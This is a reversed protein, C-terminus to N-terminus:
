DFSFGGKIWLGWESIACPRCKSKCKSSTVSCSSDCSQISCGNCTLMGATDCQDDCSDVATARQPGCFTPCCSTEDFSGSNSRSRAFEAKAGIGVYPIWCHDSWAYSFQTFIKHSTGKTEAGKLNINCPNIFVPQISTSSTLNMDFPTVSSILGFESTAQLANDVNPNRRAQQISVGPVFNKGSNITACHQTASLAIPIFDQEAFGYVHSDGKLAWENERFPVPCDKDLRIKECSRHWFNYGIDWQWNCATYNLMLTIDTQFGASVNVDFTTLNAVPQVFRDFQADAPVVTGNSIGALDNQVLPTLREALMYRSNPGNCLDFSRRQRAKFLHTFQAELYIGLESANCENEWLVWHSSLGAGFEWHHGNGITPEFVHCGKPRTGTPAAVQLNLGLHKYCTQYFNWGLAFRLDALGGSTLTDCSFRSAELSDWRVRGISDSVQPSSVGTIYETFSHLLSGRAVPAASVYGADYGTTGTAKVDECFGLKWKTRVAPAHIRFYLGHVWQELGFYLNFDAIFNQIKPEFRIASEFDTPLGFYDALWDCSGRNPVRSGTINITPCDKTGIDCGFLCEVIDSSRFSRTYEATVSATGYFCDRDLNVFQTWGALERATDLGQSRISFYPTAGPFCCGDDANVAFSLLFASLLLFRKNM